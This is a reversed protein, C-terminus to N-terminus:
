DLMLIKTKGEGEEDEQQGGVMDRVGRLMSLVPHNLYREDVAARLQRLTWIEGQIKVEYDGHEDYWKELEEGSLTPSFPADPGEGFDFSSWGLKREDEHLETVQM